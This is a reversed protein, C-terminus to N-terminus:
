KLYKKTEHYGDSYESFSAFTFADKLTLFRKKFTPALPFTQGSIPNIFTPFHHSVLLRLNLVKVSINRSKLIVTLVLVKLYVVGLNLIIGNKKSTM